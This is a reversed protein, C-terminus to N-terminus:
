PHSSKTCKKTDVDQIRFELDTVRKKGADLRLDQCWSQGRAVDFATDLGGLLALYQVKTM